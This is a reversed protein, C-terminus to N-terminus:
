PQLETIASLAEVTEDLTRVADALGLTIADSARFLKGTLVGDADKRLSPRGACVDRHFQQAVPSLEDMLLEYNGKLAERVPLNKDPSERAYVVIERAGTEPNPASSDVVMAVLGISGAESLPNDLYLADCQSAVWYAASGCLDAHAFVPKGAARLLRIAELLPPVASVSGGGSDIDLVVGAVTGDGAAERITRAIFMSGRSECTEYKTMTGHIPIVAIGTSDGSGRGDQEARVPPDDDRDATVFPTKSLFARALPLLREPDSVLWKGQLIDRALLYTDAKM